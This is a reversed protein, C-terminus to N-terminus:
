APKTWRRWSKPSAGSPGPWSYLYSFFGIFVVAMANLFIIINRIKNLLRQFNTIDQTVKIYRSEKLDYPYFLEYYTRGQEKYTRETIRGEANEDRVANVVLNLRCSEGGDLFLQDSLLPSNESPRNAAANAAVTLLEERIDGEISQEIVSYVVYSFLIVLVAFAPVLKLAFEGRISEASLL